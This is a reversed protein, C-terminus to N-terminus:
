VLGKAKAQDYIVQGAAYGIAAIAVGVLIQKLM